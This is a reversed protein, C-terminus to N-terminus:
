RLATWDFRVEKPFAPHEGLLKEMWIVDYWTHFKYGINHFRGVLRFGMRQHFRFSADTLREDPQNPMAICANMNLVGMKKLVAELERYLSTGVGNRRRDQRVYITTEVSWDYAPRSRFANACAYGVVEGGEVAKLFPYRASTVEIRRRFEQLDPADYEFTIATTRMYPAYIALLAEADAPTVNEIFM